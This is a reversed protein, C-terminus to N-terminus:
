APRALAARLRAYADGRAQYAADFTAEDGDCVPTACAEEADVLAQAAVRLPDPEGGLIARLHAAAIAETRVATERQADLAHVADVAYATEQADLLAKAAAEIEAARDAARDDIARARMGIVPDVVERAICAPCWNERRRVPGKPGRAHCPTYASRGHQQECRRAMIKRLAEHAADREATLGEVQARFSALETRWSDVVAAVPRKTPQEEHPVPPPAPLPPLSGFVVGLSEESVGALRSSAIAERRALEPDAVPEGGRALRDARIAALREDREQPSLAWAPTFWYRDFMQRMHAAGVPNASHVHPKHKPWHGTEALWKVFDYGTGVHPCHDPGLDSRCADCQGLDHDLSMYDVPGALVFAKAEELTRCLTWTPWGDGSPPNRVDDLFLSRM